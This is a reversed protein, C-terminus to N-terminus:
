RSDAADTPETIRDDTFWFMLGTSLAVLINIVLWLVNGVDTPAWFGSRVVPPLLLLLWTLHHLLSVAQVTIASAGFFRGRAAYALWNLWVFYGSLILGCPLLLHFV